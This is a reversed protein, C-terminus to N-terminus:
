GPDFPLEPFRARWRATLRAAEADRTHAAAFATGAIRLDHARGPDAILRGIAATLVAPQGPAVFEVLDPGLGALSGSRTTIVPVGVAFADLVM